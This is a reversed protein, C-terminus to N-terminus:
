QRGRRGTELVTFITLVSVAAVTWFVLRPDAHDLLYGFLIPGIVGGINFGTSVFGFVKGM